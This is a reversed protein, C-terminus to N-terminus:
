FQFYIFPHNVTGSFGMVAYIMLAYAGWRILMSQRDLWHHINSNRLTFDAILFLGIFSTLLPNWTIHEFSGTWSTLMRSSYILGDGFTDARFFVWAVFVIFFTLIWRVPKLWPATAHALGTWREILYAFGHLAGWAVFTWNAGHWLGSVLFVILINLALRLQNVRSGGIPIFVYDRFWTSLSIHWRTWFERISLSTYPAKFNDMLEIGLIRAAGIAILSYGHFDSYIHLGFLLAGTWLEEMGCLRHQAFISDVIPSINDAVCMKIFLGYLILRGGYKLNEYTFRHNAFLQHHLRSFREIPGAVLQPFFSVFLALKLPNKEPQAKGQYVDITYSLTQFTYFSIGVPLLFQWQSRFWDLTNQEVMGAPLLVDELFWGSYKFFFLLGLNSAISASLGLVRHMRNNSSAIFRAAVYDVATSFLILALYEIKWFGYFFYSAVLLLVWRLRHPLVYYAIVVAPLFVLFPLSNFLM